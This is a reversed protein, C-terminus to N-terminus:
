KQFRKARFGGSAKIPYQNYWSERQMMLYEYHEVSGTGIKVESTSEDHVHLVIPYGAKDKRLLGCAHIDRAVAQVINETLKGGWTDMEAWGVPGKENDSNWGMYRISYVYNKSVRSKVRVLRADHYVLYRGSPLYLYLRNNKSTATIDLYRHWTGPQLLAKVVMGEIGFLEPTWKWKYSDKREQGGWFEVVMPSAARWDKIAQVIEENNLFEDAGFNLMAGVWGQYGLALECVKGLKRYPHHAKNAEKYVLFDELSLETMNAASMEYIKGHTLFVEMRWKERSLFALVLAEISNYDSGILETGPAAIFLGRLCGSVAELVKSDYKNIMGQLDGSMILRLCEEVQPPGWKKLPGKSPLNQPQPGRGAWRLTREAGGYQFLGRLRGDSSLRLQMSYLKKVSEMGLLQRIELVRRCVPDKEIKLATEVDGKTLATPRSTGFIQVFRLIDKRKTHSKVRNGTIQSLEQTYLETAKEVMQVCAKLAPIDVAVGRVNIRQDLKWVELEFASLDPIAESLEKESVIDQLNYKYLEEAKTLDDKLYNRVKMGNKKTPAIPMSFHKILSKGSDLKKAVQMIDASIGLPGPLGFKKCKALSCRWQELPIPPWGRKKHCQYFWIFFEFLSNHAEVIGGRQVYDFLKIPESKLLPTWLQNDMYAISLLDTSHHEAYAPAGVAPLGPDGSKNLPFFRKGDWGYGCDSYTEVDLPIM